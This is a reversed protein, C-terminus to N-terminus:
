SAVLSLVVSGEAPITVPPVIKIVCSSSNTIGIQLSSVRSPKQQLLGLGAPAPASMKPLTIKNLRLRSSSLQYRFRVADVEVRYTMLGSHAYSLSPARNGLSVEPGFGIAASGLCLTPLSRNLLLWLWDSQINPLGSQKYTAFYIAMAGLASDHGGLLSLNAALISGVDASNSRKLLVNALSLRQTDPLYSPDICSRYVERKTLTSAAELTRPIESIGVDKTMFDKWKLRSAGPTQAHNMLLQLTAQLEVREGRASELAALVKEGTADLWQATIPEPREGIISASLTSIVGSLLSEGNFKHGLLMACAVSREPSPLLSPALAELVWGPYHLESLDHICRLVHSFDVKSAKPRSTSVTIFLPEAGQSLGIWGGPLSQTSGGKPLSIRCGSLRMCICDFGTKPNTIRLGVRSYDSIDAFLPPLIDVSCVQPGRTPVIISFVPWRSMVQVKPVTILKRVVRGDWLGFELMGSPNRLIGGPILQWVPSVWHRTHLLIPTSAVTNVVQLDRLWPIPFSDALQPPHLLPHEAAHMRCMYRLRYCNIGRFHYDKLRM